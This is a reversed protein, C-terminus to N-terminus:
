HGHSWQYSNQARLLLSRYPKDSSTYCMIQLTSLRWQQRELCPATSGLSSLTLRFLQGPMVAMISCLVGIGRRDEALRLGVKTSYVHSSSLFPKSILFEQGNGELWPDPFPAIVSNPRMLSRIRGDPPNV